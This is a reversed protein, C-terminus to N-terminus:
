AIVQMTLAATRTSIPRLWWRTSITWRCGFVLSRWQRICSRRQSTATVTAILFRNRECRLDQWYRFLQPWKDFLLIMQICSATLLFQAIRTQRAKQHRRFLETFLLQSLIKMSTLLCFYLGIMQCMVTLVPLSFFVSNLVPIRLHLKLVSLFLFSPSRSLVSYTGCSHFQSFWEYLWHCPLFGAIIVLQETRGGSITM